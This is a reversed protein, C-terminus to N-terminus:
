EGTEPMSVLRIGMKRLSANRRDLLQEVSAVPTGSKAATEVETKAREYYSIEREQRQVLALGVERLTWGSELLGSIERKM